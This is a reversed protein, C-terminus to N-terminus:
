LANRVYNYPNKDLTQGNKNKPPHMFPEWKSVADSLRRWLYGSTRRGSGGSGDASRMKPKWKMAKRLDSVDNWLEKVWKKEHPGMENANKNEIEPDQAEFYKTIYKNYM